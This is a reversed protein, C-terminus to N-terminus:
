EEMRPRIPEEPVRNPISTYGIHRKMRINPVARLHLFMAKGWEPEARMMGLLAEWWDM